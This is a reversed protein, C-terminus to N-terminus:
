GQICSEDCYTICSVCSDHNPCYTGCTDHCSGCHTPWSYKVHMAGLQVDSLAQGEPADPDVPLVLYYTSSTEEVVKVTVGQPLPTGLMKGITANPDAILQQRFQPDKLAQNIIEAELQQREIVKDAM